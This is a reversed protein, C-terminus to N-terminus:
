PGFARRAAALDDADDIEIWTGHAVRSIAFRAGEDILRQFADEYYATAPDRAIIPGLVDWLRGAAAGGVKQIGISEGASDGASIHKSLRKVFGNSGREVKMGEADFPADADVALACPEADALLAPIPNVSFMVDADCLVFDHGDIATRAAGLSAANQTTAYAPNKVFVADLQRHHESVYSEIREALHGTVIVVRRIGADDLADLLRGLLPRGSIEVLCKPTVDTIPRLRTGTGAALIVALVAM